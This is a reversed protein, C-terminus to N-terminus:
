VSWSTASRATPRCCERDRGPDSLEGRGARDPDGAFLQSQHDLVRRGPQLFSLCVGSVGSHVAGPPLHLHEDHRIIGTISRNTPTIDSKPQRYFIHWRYSRAPQFITAPALTTRDRTSHPQSRDTTATQPARAHRRHVPPAARHDILDIRPAKAIRVAVANAIQAPHGFPQLMDRPKADIRDPKTREEHRRLPIEAIVHRIIDLDIRNEPRHRIEVRKQSPSMPQSQLHQDVLHPAMRRIPVRPEQVASGAPRRRLRVPIDPGIGTRIPRRGVVPQRHEAPRRPRPLRPPPLIEQM